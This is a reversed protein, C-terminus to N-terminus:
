SNVTKNQRGASQGRTRHYGPAMDSIRENHMFQEWNNKKKDSLFFLSLKLNGKGRGYFLGRCSQCIM